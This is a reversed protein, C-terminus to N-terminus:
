MLHSVVASTFFSAGVLLSTGAASAGVGFILAHRRKMTHRQASTTAAGQRSPAKCATDMAGVDASLQTHKIMRCSFRKAFQDAIHQHLADTWTRKGPTDDECSANPGTQGESSGILTHNNCRTRWCYAVILLILGAHVLIITGNLWSRAPNDSSFYTSVGAGPQSAKSTDVGLKTSGFQPHGHEQGLPPRLSPFHSPQTKITPPSPSLPPSSNLRLTSGSHSRPSRLPVPPTTSGPLPPPAPPVAPTQVPSPLPSLPPVGPPQPQSPPFLPPPAPSWIVRKPPKAYLENLENALEFRSDWSSILQTELTDEGEKAKAWYNRGTRPDVVNHGTELNFHNKENGRVAFLVSLPDWSPRNGQADCGEPNERCFVKYARSCPSSRRNRTSYVSGTLVNLGAEFPLYYIPVRGVLRQLTENTIRPMDGYAGCGGACAGFNWEVPDNDTSQLRGGMVILKDLKRTLLDGGDWNVLEHLNTLHGAAVLTISRDLAAWLANQYAGFAPETHSRECCVFQGDAFGIGPCGRGTRSPFWGDTCHALEDLAIPACCDGGVDSCHSLDCRWSDWADYSERAPRFTDVMDDVFFGRGDRIWAPSWDGSNGPAGVQGRYAAVLTDNRGYYENIASIAGVGRKFGTNHMIGVLEVEGNDALAHAACLMGVDDVDVSLDTDIILRVPGDAVVCALTAMMAFPLAGGPVM